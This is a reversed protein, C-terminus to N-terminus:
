KAAIQPENPQVPPDNSSWCGSRHADNTGSSIWCIRGRKDTQAAVLELPQFYIKGVNDSEQTETAPAHTNHEM